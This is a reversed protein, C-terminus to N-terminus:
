SHTRQFSFPQDDTAGYGSPKPRAGERAPRAPSTRAFLPPCGTPPEHHLWIGEHSGWDVACFPSARAMNSNSPLRLAELRSWHVSERALVAGVCVVYAAVYRSALAVAASSVGKGLFLVPDPFLPMIGARVNESCGFTACAIADRMSVAHSGPLAALLAAWLGM